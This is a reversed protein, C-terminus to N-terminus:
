AAAIESRLRNAIRRGTVSMPRQPLDSAAAWELRGPQRKLRGRISTAQYCDLTIRFRTVAHRISPRDIRDLEVQLGTLDQIRSKLDAIRVSENGGAEVTFRPFDWLGAWHEGEGCRRVVVRQGRRVVVAAQNLFEVEPKGTGSRPLREPQGHALGRCHRQVPCRLCRPQHAGCVRSGLEMLAQNLDGPRHRTVLSTAFDWQRRQGANSTIDSDDNTLRAYLRRTNGEVIPWPQDFAISLIAGATYRGIGPLGLLRDPCDPIRGGHLDVIQRAAAHLQRARRYYGLGEWVQLVAPEGAAALRQVNPFRDMFREFFPIVTVVQTQQLMIESVWTRYPSPDRRWPLDRRNRDYWALLRRRFIAREPAEFM